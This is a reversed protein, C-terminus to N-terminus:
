ERQENASITSVCYAKMEMSKLSKLIGEGEEKSSIFAYLAPGTGSLHVRRAGTNSTPLAPLAELFVRQVQSLCQFASPAAQEFVNFLLSESFRGDKLTEVLSGTHGGDTYHEHSLMSYLRATKLALSANAETTHSQPCLLVMWRQPMPPLDVIVEGRGEGLATGGQLFFTVDSGLSAAISRLEDDGMSLGWFRNLAKLTAAADSSGGGLGMGVPIYKELRINAGKDCGTAKRLADAAQFVLNDEGRLEPASCDMELRPALSFRLRDALDITQLVTRVEHYGDPRRGLVELTLNIKAYAKTEM